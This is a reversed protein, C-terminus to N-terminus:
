CGGYDKQGSCINEEFPNIVIGNIEEGSDIILYKLKDYPMKILQEELFRGLKSKKIYSSRFLNENM